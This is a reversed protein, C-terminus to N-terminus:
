YTKKQRCSRSNCKAPEKRDAIISNVVHYVTQQGLNECNTVNVCSNDAAFVPNENRKNYEPLPIPATLLSSSNLTKINSAWINTIWKKGRTKKHLVHTIFHEQTISM